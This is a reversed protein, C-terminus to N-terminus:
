KCREHGNGDGYQHGAGNTTGRFTGRLQDNRYGREGSAVGNVSWTVGAELTGTVKATFQQTAGARVNATAPTVTVKARPARKKNSQALRAGTTAASAAILALAIVFCMAQTQRRM